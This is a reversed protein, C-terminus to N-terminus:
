MIYRAYELKDLSDGLKAQVEKESVVITSGPEKDPADYSIDEMVRELVSGLRRAGINEIHRNGEVTFKTMSRIASDTFM